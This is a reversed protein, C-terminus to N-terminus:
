AEVLCEEIFAKQRTFGVMVRSVEEVSMQGVFQKMDDAAVGSPPDERLSVIARSVSSVLWSSVARVEAFRL